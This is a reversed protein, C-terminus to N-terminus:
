STQADFILSEAGRGALENSYTQTDFIPEGARSSGNRWIEHWGEAEMVIVGMCRWRLRGMMYALTKM